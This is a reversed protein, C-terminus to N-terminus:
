SDPDEAHGEYGHSDGGEALDSGPISRVIRGLAGNVFKGSDDTGFVKALEVAESIAVPVPALKGLICEFLCMRLAARDVAVMREPRWGTVHERILDDIEQRRGWAGITLERAYQEIDPDEDDFFLEFAQEPTQSERLDLAYLMQLAMERSRHRKQTFVGRSM